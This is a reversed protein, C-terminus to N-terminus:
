EILSPDGAFYRCLINVMAGRFKKANEGPLFMVLTMAGPFTIVPQSKQGPGKFKHNVCFKNVEEQHKEPMRRMTYAAHNNDQGCFHMVIDRICLRQWNEIHVMRVYAGPVVEDFPVITNGYMDESLDSM